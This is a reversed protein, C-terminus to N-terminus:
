INLGSGWYPDGMAEVITLRSQLLKEKVHSCSNFKLRCSEVMENYAKDKWKDSFASDPLLSKAKKMADFGTEESLLLYAEKGLNHDKLKKFQYHHELTPFTMGRDQIVCGQPCNHLNSLQCQGGHFTELTGMIVKTTQAPCKQDTPHHGQNGCRNCVTLNPPRFVRSRSGSVEIAEVLKSVENVPIYM